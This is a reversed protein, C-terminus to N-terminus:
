PVCGNHWWRAGHVVVVLGQVHGDDAAADSAQDVQVVGPQGPQANAQQFPCAGHATQPAFQRGPLVDLDARHVPGHAVQGDFAGHLGLHQGVDLQPDAAKPQAVVDAQVARNLPRAVVSLEPFQARGSAGQWRAVQHGGGASVVAGPYRGHRPAVARHSFQVGACQALGFFQTAGAHQHHTAAGRRQIQQVLAQQVPGCVDGPRVAAQTPERGGALGLRHGAAHPRHRAHLGLAHRHFLLVLRYLGVEQCAVSLPADVLQDRLLCQVQAGVLDEGAAGAHQGAQGLDVTVVGFHHGQFAPLRQQRVAVSHGHVSHQPAGAVAGVQAVEGVWAQRRHGAHVFQGLATGADKAAQVLRVQVEGADAQFAKAGRRPIEGDHRAAHHRVDHALRLQVQFRLGVPEVVQLHHAVQGAM